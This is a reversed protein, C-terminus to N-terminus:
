FCHILTQGRTYGIMRLDVTMIDNRAPQPALREDKGVKQLNSYVGVIKKYAISIWSQGIKLGLVYKDM